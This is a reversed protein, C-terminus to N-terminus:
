KKTFIKSKSTESLQYSLPSIFGSSNGRRTNEIICFHCLYKLEIEDPDVWNENRRNKEKYDDMMLM